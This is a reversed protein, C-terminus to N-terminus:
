VAAPRAGGRFGHLAFASAIFAIGSVLAYIGSAIVVYLLGWGPNAIIVSGLIIGAAGAIAMLWDIGTRHPHTFADLLHLIGVAIAWGAFIYLLAIAAFMPYAFAAIGALISLCGALILWFRNPLGLFVATFGDALAYIGFLLILTILGLGPSAIALTGFLVGSIGRLMLVWWFSSIREALLTNKM